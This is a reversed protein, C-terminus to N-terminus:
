KSAEGLKALFTRIRKANVGIDSKGMRSVSRVDVRTGQGSPTIRVVVDDTFGYLLTTDTAEIRGEGPVAAVIEWGMDRAVRQADNFVKGPPVDLM